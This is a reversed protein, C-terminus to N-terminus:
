IATTFWDGRRGAPIEEKWQNWVSYMFTGGPNAVMGAEGSLDDAKNELWPWRILRELNWSVMLQNM